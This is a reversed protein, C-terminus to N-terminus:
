QVEKLRIYFNRNAIFTKGDYWGPLILSQWMDSSPKIWQESGDPNGFSIKTPLHLGAVASDLRYSVVHNEIKYELVPITVTRLYQDFIKSFDIGSQKSVYNEIQKTTVTQHYFKKNLGRLINRFKNDNNIVQRILNILTSGKYYIDLDSEANVGYPSIVPQKNLINKRSGLFYEEAAKKGFQYEVFLVESYCTFSEHIWMDAIDKSTINNGFWEHGSEHIIIFDFKQEWETNTWSKKRKGSNYGNKYGNGYAIASQHEMGLEPAEVLKYGDEYFPYPGFWHEFAKMMRPADLFQKKAKELNYDMVWYDMDLKGKEGMYLESFHVYKGIYPVICYNNIPAKTEWSYMTTGDNLSRKQTLRGNGVAVLSDPVIIHQIAGSDPEDAQTDKCPYWASAGLGQCAVSMWPNGKEDQKWIWGGDWPPRVAEQPKGHFFFTLSRPGPKIKYMAATDRLELWYVNGERQFQYLKNDDKVSDLQMPEQLDIQMLKAGNDFFSMKNKGEITKTNYDPKVTIEYKLVDWKMRYPGNTGRLTDAHTYSSEQAKVQDINYGMALCILLTIVSRRCHKIDPMM